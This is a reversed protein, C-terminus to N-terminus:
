PAEIMCRGFLFGQGNGVEIQIMYPGPDLPTGGRDYLRNWMTDAALDLTGDGESLLEENYYWKKAFATGPTVDRYPWLAYLSATGYPFRNGPDVPESTAEDIETAFEVPGFQKEASPNPSVVCADALVVEGDVELVFRYTGADLPALDERAAKVWLLDQSLEVTGEAVAFPQGDHTWTARVPTDPRLNRYPMSAYLTTTGYDFVTGADLPQEAEEDFRSAFAVQGFSARSSFGGFGELVFEGALVPEGAVDLQLGYTGAAPPPAGEGALPEWFGANAQEFTGDRLAVSKGNLTWTM